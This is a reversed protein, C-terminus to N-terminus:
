VQPRAAALTPRHHTVCFCVCVLMFNCVNQFKVCACVYLVANFNCVHLYICVSVFFSMMCVFICLHVSPFVCLSVYVHM